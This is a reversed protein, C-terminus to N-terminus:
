LVEFTLTTAPTAGVRLAGRLDGDFVLEGRVHHGSGADGETNWASATVGGLTSRSALLPDSLDDAHNDMSLTVTTQGDERVVSELTADIGNQSVTQSSETGARTIESTQAGPPKQGRVLAFAAGALLAIVLLLWLPLTPTQTESM